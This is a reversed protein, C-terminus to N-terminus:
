DDSTDEAGAGPRALGIGGRAFTPFDTLVGAGDNLTAPWNADVYIRYDDTMPAGLFEAWGLLANCCYKGASRALNMAFIMRSGRITIRIDPGNSATGSALDLRM